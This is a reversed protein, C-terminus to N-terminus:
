IAAYTRLDNEMADLRQISESKALELTAMGQPPTYAFMYFKIKPETGSPRCAVYNGERKLDLIVLDGQPGQLPQPKGGAPTVSQRGFDRIQLVEDGGIAAPPQSRFAAMVDQMRTLGESGPMQVNLTREMHLGHQEFLADLKEHLTVSNSKLRAALECILLSALAGDKDRAYTGAMYGHAEETGYIFREPGFDDIARAIWKFGVLLDGITRVGYSDAIRRILQTTVLTTVIFHEPTLRGAQKWEGLLYDALLAGIQNGTLPEWVANPVYRLPAACGIRDCDPDTALM